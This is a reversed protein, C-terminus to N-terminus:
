GAWAAAGLLAWSAGLLAGVLSILRAAQVSGHVSVCAHLGAGAMVLAVPVLLPGVCPLAVLSAGYALVRLVRALAVPRGLAASLGRACLAWSVVVLVLLSAWAVTGLVWAASTSLASTSGIGLTFPDAGRASLASLLLGLPLVGVLAALLLYGLAALGYGPGALKVGLRRPSSMAEAWTHWFAFPWSEEGRVEWAVASRVACRACLAADDLEDTCLGCVFDGCRACAGQALAAPHLTCYVPM